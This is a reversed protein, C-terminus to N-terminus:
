HLDKASGMYETCYCGFTMGKACSVHAGIFMSLGTTRAALPMAELDKEEQTKRHRKAKKPTDEAEVAVEEKVSVSTETKKTKRHKKPSRALDTEEEEKVVVEERKKTRRSSKSPKAPDIVEHEEFVIAETKQVRRARRPSGTTVVRGEEKAKISTTELGVADEDQATGDAETRKVRLKKIRPTPRSEPEAHESLAEQENLGRGASSQTKRNRRPSATFVPLVETERETVESNSVRPRKSRQPSQTIDAASRKASLGNTTSDGNTTFDAVAARAVSENTTPKSESRLAPTRRSPRLPSM